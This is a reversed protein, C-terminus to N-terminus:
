GINNGRKNGGKIKIIESDRLYCGDCAVAEHAKGEKHLCRIRNLKESNWAKKITTDKINGLLIQSDYDHNCPSINGDWWVGMRQWLQPCAWPFKVGLKKTKMEQYELLSVEDAKKGWFNIYKELLLEMGPLIVAQIRVKPHKVNRKRKLSQLNEINSVLKEFNAGVRYKEYVKKTHGEISISIRDLGTDILRDALEKTLLMANTNFYVDVLRKSKAYQIFEYIQPHLLPEGRINFKVGYLNNDAGENIIRKVTNFAIFGKQMKNEKFTRACFPCKLNCMNTVEIDIFLPFEGAYFSKPWEQWKKRYEKFRESTTQLIDEGSVHYLNSNVNIIASNNRLPGKM